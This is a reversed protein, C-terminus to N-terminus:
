KEDNYYYRKDELIIKKADTLIKLYELVMRRSLGLDLCMIAIIEDKKWGITKRTCIKEYLTNMRYIREREQSIGKGM